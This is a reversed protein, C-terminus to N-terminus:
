LGRERPGLLPRGRGRRGRRRPRRGWGLALGGGLFALGSLVAGVLPLGTFPLHGRGPGADQEGLPGGSGVVTPTPPAPPPSAPPTPLAPPPTVTVTASCSGRTFGDKAGPGSAPDELLIDVRGQLPPHAHSSSPDHAGSWASWPINLVVYPNSGSGTRHCVIVHHRAENARAGEEGAGEKDASQEHKAKPGAPASAEPEQGSQGSVDAAGQSKRTHGNAKAHVNGVLGPPEKDSSAAKSGHEVETKGKGANAPAVSGMLVIAVVCAALVGPRRLISGM